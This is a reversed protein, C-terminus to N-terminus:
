ASAEAVAASLEGALSNPEARVFRVPLLAGLVHDPATAHVAQLYPSRGVLQGPHRGRKEFLVPLERGVMAANFGRQQAALLEQLEALREAKVAEPVQEPMSAAPTGPRPSYKFSFAQAYGVDRVLTLTEAFDTASEGPFGVIFDSSFAIDAREARLREIVRRYDDATHRRNMARLVCDSGSQVPLHLFPMLQPVERHAALLTDDVDLPHSTTYRLRALGPIAALARILQGLGWIGGDPAAGQYANVNQGLL